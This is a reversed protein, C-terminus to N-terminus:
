TDFIAVGPLTKISFIQEFRNNHLQEREIINKKNLITFLIEGKM